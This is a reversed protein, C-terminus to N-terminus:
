PGLKWELSEFWYDEVGGLWGSRSNDDIWRNLWALLDTRRPPVAMAQHIVALPPGPLLRIEGPHSLALFRPGPQSGFFVDVEGRLLADYLRGADFFPVRKARPFRKSVLTDAVTQRVVGIRVAGNDLDELSRPGDGGRSGVAAKIESSAYPKTFAVQKARAPTVTMGAIIVDIRDSALAPLLEDWDLVHYVPSVGLDMAVRAAVEPEFGALSDNRRQMAWPVFLSVGVHLEGSARISELDRGSACWPAITLLLALWCLARAGRGSVSRASM